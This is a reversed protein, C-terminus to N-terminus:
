ADVGESPAPRARLQGCAARVRAGRSARVTAHIGRARLLAGFQRAAAESTPLAPYEAVPSLPILNVRCPLPALRRALAQAHHASDNVGQVLTYEFTVIRGTREAHRRCAPLLESLPHKRNVPMLSSRLTDDPAHLSVSLEVQIKELALRELAAPLGCTSITIRRAALRLGEPHNLIRISKLVEDYNDLPEGVGMYVVHTPKQGQERWVLLLQAVIEAARLNRRFGGQGSACFACGYRCGCQSSVCLTRRNKAPILVTEVREGDNMEVLFKIAEGARGDSRQVIRAPNLSLRRALRARLAAPINTMSEWDAANHVYLWQWLQAARFAPVGMERCLAELEHPALNCAAEPQVSSDASKM